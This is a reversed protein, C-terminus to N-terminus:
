RFADCSSNDIKEVLSFAFQYGLSVLRADVRAIQDNPTHLVRPWDPSIGIISIAPIKKIVFSSSDADAGEMESQSIKIGLSKALDSAAAMMKRNSMNSPTELGTMGLSDINVMACYQKLQEKGITRTMAKSGLLGSEEGGFAIFLITKDTNVDKIAKFLHAITVIGTWNDIAGCGLEVKDYHAGVVIIDNTKGPKRVILNKIGGPNEITMNEPLAGLKTFLDHAAKLRDTSKCPVAKLDIQLQDVTSLEAKRQGASSFSLVGIAFLLFLTARTILSNSNIFKM